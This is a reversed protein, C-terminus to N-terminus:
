TKGSPWSDVCEAVSAGCPDAISISHGIVCNRGAHKAAYVNTDARAILAGFDEDGSRVAVGFSATVKLGGPWENTEVSHRLTEALACAQALSAEPCVILFEEGGWRVLRDSGRIRRQLLAAFIQLVTDGTAHGHGDNIRKFHDIDAFMISVAARQGAGVEPWREVLFDRLGERNLAGTLPDIRAKGALKRTEIDLAENLAQLQAVRRRAERYRGRYRQLEYALAAVGFLVWCALLGTVLREQRFPRGVLEISELDVQHLGDPVDNPTSFEMMVVNDLRADTKELPVSREALWWSAIRVVKLPVEVLGRDPVGFWVEDVKLSSWDGPSSLGHEFDRLFLRLQPVGPGKYRVRLRLTDYPTFDMGAPETGLRVSIVCYPWTYGRRITCALRAGSDLPRLEAVSSGGSVIDSGVSYHFNAPALALVRAPGRSQWGLLGVTLLILTTLLLRLHSSLGM